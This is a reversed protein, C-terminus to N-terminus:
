LFVAAFLFFIRFLFLASSVHIFPLVSALVAHPELNKRTSITIKLYNVSGLEKKKTARGVEM